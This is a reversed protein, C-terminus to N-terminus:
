RNYFVYDGGRAGEACVVGCVTEEEEAAGAAEEEALTPVCCRNRRARTCMEAAVCEAAFAKVFLAAVVLAAEFAVEFADDFAFSLGTAPTAAAALEGGIGYASQFTGPTPVGNPSPM